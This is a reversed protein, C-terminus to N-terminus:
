KPEVLNRKFNIKGSIRIHSDPGLGIRNENVIGLDLLRGDAIVEIQGDFEGEKLTQLTKDVGQMRQEFTPNKGLSMCGVTMLLAALMMMALPTTPKRSVLGITRYAKAGMGQAELKTVERYHAECLWRGQVSLEAMKRCRPWACSEKM